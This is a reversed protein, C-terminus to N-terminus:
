QVEKANLLNRVGVEKINMGAGLHPFLSQFKPDFRGNIAPVCSEARERFCLTGGVGMCSRSRHDELFLEPQQLAFASSSTLSLELTKLFLFLHFLIAFNFNMIM